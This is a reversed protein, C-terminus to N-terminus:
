LTTADKTLDLPIIDGAVPDRPVSNADARFATGFGAGFGDEIPAAAVPPTPAPVPPATSDTSGCAALGGALVAIGAFKWILRNM